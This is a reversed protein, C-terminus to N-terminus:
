PGFMSGFEDLGKQTIRSVVGVGVAILYHAMPYFGMHPVTDNMCHMFVNRFRKQMAEKLSEATHLNVHGVQSAPSAYGAATKNPTGCVFVADSTLVSCINAFYKGEDEPPIHEIVDLSLAGDYVGRPTQKTIDLCEVGLQPEADVGYVSGVEQLLLPHGIKDGCGVDLVREKGSLIKAAFLYRALVFSLRRPDTRWTHSSWPGLVVPETALQSSNQPERAMSKSEAM